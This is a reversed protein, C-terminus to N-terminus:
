IANRAVVEPVHVRGDFGTSDFCRFQSQYRVPSRLQEAETHVEIQAEPDAETFGPM